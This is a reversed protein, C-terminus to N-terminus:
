LLVVFKGERVSGFLYEGGVTASPVQPIRQMISLTKVAVSEAKGRFSEKRQVKKADERPHGKRHVMPESFRKVASMVTAM